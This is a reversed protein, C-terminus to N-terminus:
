SLWRGSLVQNRAIHYTVLWFFPMLAKIAADAPDPCSCSRKPSRTCTAALWPGALGRGASPHQQLRRFTSPRRPVRREQVPAFILGPNNHGSRLIPFANAADPQAADWIQSAGTQVPKDGLGDLRSAGDSGIAQRGVPISHSDGRGDPGAEDLPPLINQRRAYM